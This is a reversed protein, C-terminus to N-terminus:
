ERVYDGSVFEHTKFAVVYVKGNPDAWYERGRTEILDGNAKRAAQIILLRDNEALDPPPMRKYSNTLLNFPRM